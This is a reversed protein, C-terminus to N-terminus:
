LDVPQGHPLDENGFLRVDRLLKVHADRDVPVGALRDDHHAGFAPHMDFLRGPGCRLLDRRDVHVRHESEIGILGARQEPLEAESLM